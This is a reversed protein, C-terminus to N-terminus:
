ITSGSDTTVAAADKTTLILKDDRVEISRVNEWFENSRADQRQSRDFGENFSTNIEDAFTQWGTMDIDQGNATFSKVGLVFRDADYALALRVTGNFWRNRVRPLPIGSLPVSLDITMISDAIDVRTKGRWDSFAPHRAILANLEPATFEVTLPQQMVGATRIREFKDNAAAFQADSPPEMLVAVPAPATLADITKAYLYYLGGFFLALAAILVLFISACGLGCCCGGGGGRNAPVQAPPITNATSDM